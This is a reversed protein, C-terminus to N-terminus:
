IPIKELLGIRQKLMNKAKSLQSRSTGATIQLMGAIEEHSYGEMVYLNFVLRYGPPLNGILKLLEEESLKSLIDANAQQAPQIDDTIVSFHMKKEVMRIATNAVIRRIWGEFSGKFKYQHLHAFVKVFSEQLIDEAEQREGSYRLCVTMMKGAYQEFLARQCSEDKKLCGKILEAETLEQYKIHGILPLYWEKPFRQRVSIPHIKKLFPDPLM